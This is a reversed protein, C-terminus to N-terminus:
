PPRQYVAMTETAFVPWWEAEIVAVQRALEPMRLLAWRFLYNDLVVYRAAAFRADYAFRAPPLNTPLHASTLSAAALAMQYDAVAGPLMWALAPTALALAEPERRLALFEAVARTEAPPLSVTALSDPPAARLWLGIAFLLIAPKLWPALPRAGSSVNAIRWVLAAASLALWPLWPILHYAALGVLAVSRAVALLPMGFFWLADARFQRPLALVGLVSLPLWIDARWLAGVNERLLALQGSLPLAMLRSWLAALDYRTAEPALAWGLALFVLSPALAIGLALPWDRARRRGSLYVLGPLLTWALLDTMMAAGLAGAALLLWRRSSRRSRRYERWALWMLLALVAVLQYSLAYRGLALARPSIALLAATLGALGLPAGSRRLIVPLMAVSLLQLMVVLYRSLFLADAGMGTAGSLRWWVALVAPFLPGKAFLLTSDQIALYRLRGEGLSRAIAFHTGEDAYIGAGALPALRTAAALLLLACGVVLPAARKM